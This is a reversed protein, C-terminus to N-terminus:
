RKINNRNLSIVKNKFFSHYLKVNILYQKWSRFCFFISGFNGIHKRVLSCNYDSFALPFPSSCARSFSSQESTAEWWGLSHLNTTTYTDRTLARAVRLQSSTPPHAFDSVNPLLLPTFRSCLLLLQFTHLFCMSASLSLPRPWEAVIASYVFLHFPSTSVPNHSM